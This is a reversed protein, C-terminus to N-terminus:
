RGALRQILGAAAACRMNTQRIEGADNVQVLGAQGAPFHRKKAWLIRRRLFDAAANPEIKFLM